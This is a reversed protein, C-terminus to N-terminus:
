VKRYIKEINSLLGQSALKSVEREALERKSYQNVVVQGKEDLEYSNLRSKYEKFALIVKYAIVEEKIEKRILDKKISTKVKKVKNSTSVSDVDFKKVKDM